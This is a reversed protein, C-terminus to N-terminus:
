DPGWGDVQRYEPALSARAELEMAILWAEREAALALDRWVQIERTRLLFRAYLVDLPERALDTM